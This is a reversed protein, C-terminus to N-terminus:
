PFAPCRSPWLWQGGSPRSEGTGCFWWNWRCRPCFGMGGGELMHVSLLGLGWLPPTAHPVYMINAKHVATVKKRGSEQALQFAYEAIRLSKAKTIIKLSEVVGAVSQSPSSPGSVWIRDSGARQCSTGELCPRGSWLGLWTDGM